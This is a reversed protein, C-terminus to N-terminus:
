GTLKSEEDGTDPEAGTFGEVRESKDLSLGAQKAAVDGLSLDVTGLLSNLAAAIMGPLGMASLAPGMAISNIMRAPLGAMISSLKNAAIGGTTQDGFAANNLYDAIAGALAPDHYGPQSVGGFLGARDATDMATAWGMFGNALANAF